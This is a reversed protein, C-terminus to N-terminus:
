ADVTVKEASLFQLPRPVFPFPATEQATVGTSTRFDVSSVNTFEAASWSSSARCNGMPALSVHPNVMCTMPWDAAVGSKLNARVAGGPLVQVYLMLASSFALALEWVTHPSGAFPMGPFLTLSAYKAFPVTTVAPVAPETVNWHYCDVAADELVITRAPLQSM